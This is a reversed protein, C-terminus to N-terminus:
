AKAHNKGWKEAWKEWSLEFRCRWLAVKFVLAVGPDLQLWLSAGFAGPGRINSWPWQVHFM